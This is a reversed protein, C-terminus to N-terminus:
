KESDILGKIFKEIVVSQKFNQDYLQRSYEGMAVWNDRCYLMKEYAEKISTKNDPDFMYGNKGDVLTEFRNGCRNSILLPLRSYAAEVLCLPSQDSFSPLVFFHSISYFSVLENKQKFGELIISGQYNNKRIWSEIMEKDEGDGLVHFIAKRVNDSGIANFFNVIGKIKELLRVPMIVHPLGTSKEGKQLSGFVEEEIVNPLLIHSKVPINWRKFTEVSMQGPVIFCGCGSKFVFSRLTRKFFNDNRSGNTLYNAESWFILENKVIHLRKLMCIAMIDLDNWGSGLIVRADKNNKVYKILSPNWHVHHNLIVKYFGNFIEYPYEIQSLDVNWSRDDETLRMYLVKFDLGKKALSNFLSTRYPAIINQVILYKM